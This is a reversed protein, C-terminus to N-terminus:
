GRKRCLINFASGYNEASPEVDNVRSHNLSEAGCLDKRARPPPHSKLCSVVATARVAFLDRKFDQWRGFLPRYKVFARRINIVNERGSPTARLINVFWNKVVRTHWRRSTCPSIMVALRKYPNLTRRVTRNQGFVTSVDRAVVVRQAFRFM